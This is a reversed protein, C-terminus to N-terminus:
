VPAWGLTSEVRRALALLEADAHHAGVFMAGQPLGGARGVPLSIAPHGSLNFPLANAAAPWGRRPNGEAWSPEGRGPGTGPTTPLLLFDLGVLAQDVARRLQEGIAATALGPVSAERVSAGADEVAAAFVGIAAATRPEVRAPDFGEALVGIRLGTLSEPAAQVADLCSPPSAGRPTAIVDLLRAVAEASRGLPGVQETAPDIGLAGGHPVLGRTPKHGIVGCRSASVRVSGRRDIALALDVDGCLLGAAAVIEGGAGIVREALGISDEVAVRVGNLPGPALHQPYGPM